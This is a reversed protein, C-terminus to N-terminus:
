NRNLMMKLAKHLSDTYIKKALPLDESNVWIQSKANNNKVITATQYYINHSNLIDCTDFFIELNGGRSEMLLSLNQM